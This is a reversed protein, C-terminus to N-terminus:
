VEEKVAVLCFRDLQNHRACMDRAEEENLGYYSGIFKWETREKHELAFKLSDYKQYVNYKRYKKVAHKNRSKVCGICKDELGDPNNKNKNFYKKNKPKERQCVECRKLPIIERSVFKQPKVDPIPDEMVEEVRKGDRYTTRVSPLNPIIEQERRKQNDFGGSAKTYRDLFAM